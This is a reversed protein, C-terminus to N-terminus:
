SPVLAAVEVVVVAPVVVERPIRVAVPSVSRAAIGSNTNGGGATCEITRAFVTQVNTAAPRGVAAGDIVTATSDGHVITGTKDHTSNGEWSEDTRWAAVAEDLNWSHEEMYIRAEAVAEGTANRFRQLMVERSDGQQVVSNYSAGPSVPILLTKKCQISNGSFLNIRRVETVSVHYRLCLGQLTDDPMVTHEVVKPADAIVTNQTELVPAPPDVEQLQWSGDDVKVWSKGSPPPPLPKGLAELEDVVERSHNKWPLYGGEM